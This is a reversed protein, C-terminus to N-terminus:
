LTFGDSIFFDRRESTETPPFAMVVSVSHFSKSKCIFLYLMKLITLRREKMGGFHALITTPRPEAQSTAPLKRRAPVGGLEPYM